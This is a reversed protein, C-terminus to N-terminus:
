IKVEHVMSTYIDELNEQAAKKARDKRKQELESCIEMIKEEIAVM